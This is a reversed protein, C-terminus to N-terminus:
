HVAGHSSGRDMVGVLDGSVLIYASGAGLEHMEVCGREAPIATWASGDSVAGTGSPSATTTAVSEPQSVVSGCRSCVGAAEATVSESVAPAACTFRHKESRAAVAFTVACEPGTIPEFLDDVVLVLNVNRQCL